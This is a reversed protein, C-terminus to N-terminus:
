KRRLLARWRLIAVPLVAAVTVIAVCIGGIASWESLTVTALLGGLGFKGAHSGLTNV